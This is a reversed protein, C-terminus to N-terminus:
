LHPFSDSVVDRRKHLEVPRCVRREGFIVNDPTFRMQAAMLPDKRLALENGLNVTLDDTGHRRKYDTHTRVRQPVM